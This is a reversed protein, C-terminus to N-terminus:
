IWDKPAELKIKIAESQKLSKSDQTEMYMKPDNKKGLDSFTRPIKLPIM